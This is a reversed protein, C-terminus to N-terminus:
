YCKGYEKSYDLTRRAAYRRQGSAAGIWSVWRYGDADIYYDYLVTQTPQYFVGTETEKAVRPATRVYLNEVTIEFTGRQAVLGSPHAGQNPDYGDTSITGSPKGAKIDAAFQTISIGWKALYGNPDGHTTNNYPQKLRCYDHTLIGKDGSNLIQPVGAQKALDCLVQVYLEYDRKFEALNSHSEILEVGAFARNNWGGGVDWLGRGVEAVQIVQGNGIVHSYFGSTIDKHGMFDAENKATSTPNGTSHAHIQNYPGNGVKPLGGRIQRIIEM